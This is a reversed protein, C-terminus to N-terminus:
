RTWTERGCLVDNKHWSVYVKISVNIRFDLNSLHVEAKHKHASDKKTQANILTEDLDLVLHKRKLSSNSNLLSQSFVSLTDDDSDSQTDSRSSPNSKKSFLSALKKFTSSM